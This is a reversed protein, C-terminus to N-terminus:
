PFSDPHKRSYSELFSAARVDPESDVQGTGEETWAGLPLDFSGDSMGALTANSPLLPAEDGGDVFRRLYSIDSVLGGSSGDDAM